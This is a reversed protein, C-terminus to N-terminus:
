REGAAPSVTEAAVDLSYVAEIAREYLVEADAFAAVCAGLDRLLGDAVDYVWGHLALKAGRQWAGQVITSLSLNQVQEVVNLEVLRQARRDADAVSRLFAQHKIMTDGIHRLWNDILGLSAGDMAARVGGCGYHGCVVINEVGLVEVAYQLVSLCNFDTHVVLNAVNRHVFMEGPALGCIQTAPVRSDACGIWFSRPRQAEALRRFFHADDSTIDNVWRRNKAFIQRTFASTSKQSM